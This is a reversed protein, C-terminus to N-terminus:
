PPGPLRSDRSDEAPATQASPGAAGAAMLWASRAAEASRAEVHVIDKAGAVPVERFASPRALALAATDDVAPAPRRGVHSRVGPEAHLRRIFRAAPSDASELARLATEDVRLARAPDIPALIRIPIGAAFVAAAAQPDRATNWDTAGARANGGAYDIRAIRSKMAPEAALLRALNTLPGLALWVVPAPSEALARRATELSPPIDGCDQRVAPQVADLARTIPRWPPPSAPSPEGVGLPVAARGLGALLAEARRAGDCPSSGGDSTVVAKLSVGTDAALLALARADDISVDTDIIVPVAGTGAPAAALAIPFAALGALGRIFAAIMEAGGNRVDISADLTERVLM